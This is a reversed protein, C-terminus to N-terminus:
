AMTGSKAPAAWKTNPHVILDFGLDIAAYHPLVQVSSNSAELIREAVRAWAYESLAEYIFLLGTKAPRSIPPQPPM